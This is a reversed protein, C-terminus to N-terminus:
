MVNYKYRRNQQHLETAGVYIREENDKIIIRILM